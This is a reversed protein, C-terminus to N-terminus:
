HPLRAPLLTTCVVEHWRPGRASSLTNTLCWLLVSCASYERRYPDPHKRDALAAEAKDFIQALARPDHVDRLMGYLSYMTM